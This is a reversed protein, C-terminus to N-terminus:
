YNINYFDIKQKLMTKFFNNANVNEEIKKNPFWKKICAEYILLWNTDNISIIKLEEGIEDLKSNIRVSMVDFHIIYDIVMAKIFDNDIDLLEVLVDEKLDSCGLTILLWLIWLVECENKAKINSNLIDKLRLLFDDTVLEKHQLIIKSIFRALDPKITLVSLFFSELYIWQDLDGKKLNNLSKLIYKYSAEIGQDYLKNCENIVYIISEKENIKRGLYMVQNLNSQIDFPYKTIKTKEENINLRYERFINSIFKLGLIAEDETKFYFKYDDVYHKFVFNNKNLDDDIFSLIFESIIRSTIPGTPIGKTEDSQGKRLATDLNKGWNDVTRKKAAKKGVVCWEIIHTYISEYFKSIDIKLEYKYGMSYRMRKKISESFKSKINLLECYLPIDLFEKGDNKRFPNSETNGNNNIKNKIQEINNKLTECLYVYQEPNPVKIVRRTTETKYIALEECESNVSKQYSTKLKKIYKYFLNSNFCTPIYESFLGYKYFMEDYNM